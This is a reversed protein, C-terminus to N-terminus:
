FIWQDKTLEDNTFFTEESSEPALKVIDNNSDYGMTFSTKKNNWDTFIFEMLASKTPRLNHVIKGYNKAISAVTALLLQKETLSYMNKITMSSYDAKFDISLLPYNDTKTVIETRLDKGSPIPNFINKVKNNGSILFTMIKDDYITNMWENQNAFHKITKSFKPHSLYSASGIKGGLKNIISNVNQYNINLQGNNLIFKIDPSYDREIQRKFTWNYYKALSNDVGGIEYWGNNDFKINSVTGDKYQFWLVKYPGHISDEIKYNVIEKSQSYRGISKLSDRLSGIRTNKEGDTNSCSIVGVSTVTTM